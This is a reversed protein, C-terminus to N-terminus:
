TLSELALFQKLEDQTKRGWEIHVFMKKEKKFILLYLYCTFIHAKVLIKTTPIPRPSRLM